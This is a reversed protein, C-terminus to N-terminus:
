STMQPSVDMAHMMHHKQLLTRREKWIYAKIMKMTLPANRELISCYKEGELILDEPAVVRNVFGAQFAKQAARWVTGVM